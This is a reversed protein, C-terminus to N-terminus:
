GDKRKSTNLLSNNLKEKLLKNYKEIGEVHNYPFWEKNGNLEGFCWEGDFKQIKFPWSKM